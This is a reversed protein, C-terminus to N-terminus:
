DNVGEITISLIGLVTNIADYSGEYYGQQFVDDNKEWLKMIEDYYDRIREEPTRAITYGNVLASLILQDNLGDKQLFKRIIFNDTEPYVSGCLTDAVIQMNSKGSARLRDIAEAVEKPLTVKEM